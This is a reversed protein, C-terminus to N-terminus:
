LNKENNILTRNIMKNGYFYREDYLIRDKNEELWDLTAKYFDNYDKFVTTLAFSANAWEYFDEFTVERFEEMAEEIQSLNTGFLFNHVGNPEYDAIFAGMAFCFNITSDRQTKNGKKFLRRVLYENLEDNDADVMELYQQKWDIIENFTKVDTTFYRRPEDGDVYEDAKYLLSVPFNIDTLYYLDQLLGFSLALIGQEVRDEPETTLDSPVNLYCEIRDGIKPTDTRERQQYLRVAVEVYYPLIAVPTIRNIEEALDHSFETPQQSLRQKSFIDIVNDPMPMEKIHTHYPTATVPDYYRATNIIPIYFVHSLIM